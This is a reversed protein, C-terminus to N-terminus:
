GGLVKLKCALVGQWAQNTESQAEMARVAVPRHLGLVLDGLEQYRVVRGSVLLDEVFARAARVDM